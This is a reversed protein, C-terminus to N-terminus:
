SPLPDGVYHQPADEVDLAVDEGEAVVGRAPLLGGVELALTLARIDRGVPPLLRSGRRPWEDAHGNTLRPAPGSCAVLMPKTARTSTVSARLAEAWPAVM